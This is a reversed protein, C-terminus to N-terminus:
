FNSKLREYALLIVGAVVLVDYLNFHSITFFKIYDLVCGSQYRALLNLVGGCLMLGLGVYDLTALKFLRLYVYTFAVLIVFVLIVFFRV